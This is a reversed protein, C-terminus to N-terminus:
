DSFRNRPTELLLRRIDEPGKAEQWKEEFGETQWLQAIASLAKLHFNRQDPSTALVFLAFVSDLDEVMKVGPKCRAVLIMFRQSSELAIHPVALGSTLVTSSLNERSKLGSSLEEPSESLDKSLERAALDFFEERTLPHEIDLVRCETVLKDFQDTDSQATRRVRGYIIIDDPKIESDFLFPLIRKKGEVEREIAMCLVRGKSGLEEIISEPTEARVKSREIAVEDQSFWHDWNGLSVPEGFIESADLHKLTDDDSARGPPLVLVGLTPVLFIERLEKVALANIESNSTLAIAIGAAPGGAQSLLESNLASGATAQLGDKEAAKVRSTNSDLMSVPNTEALIRGLARATSSAGIILITDRQGASRVLMNERKLWETGWKLLMPVTATTIIAMFVLISFIEQSILGMNLGIGAIIIEVAGRGNMGAGIVLGERWGYGTPLYFLATGVIKGIFAAAIITLFLNLDTQFVDFSVEFGAMVFFIPALFGVSVDRVLDNLERNIKPELMGGRLFLGAVFTGLIAHLGALEAAEAFALAVLLMLTFYISRSHVGLRQILSFLKPLLYIGILISIVFFLLAKGAVLLLGVIELQEKEAFGIVGAFIVLSLTDAILAGALLVHAIRTDLIQLDVLIRSKTALSTVGVAIGVFVGAMHTGGFLIVTGWGLFFPTFFGGIAALFGAWSAKFLEKPDIEMGIYLMLLLVGVHALVELGVYTEGGPLWGLLAPGVIIGILLEGLVAPYGIRQALSGGAWAAILVLLLNLISLEM